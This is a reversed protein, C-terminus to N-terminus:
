EVVNLSAVVILQEKVEKFMERTYIKSAQGEFSKLSTTLIPEDLSSNFDAKSENNRYENIAWDFNQLFESIASINKIYVKM